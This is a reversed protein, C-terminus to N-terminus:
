TAGHTTAQAASLSLQGTRQRIMLVRLTALRDAEDLGNVVEAVTAGDRLRASLRSEHPTLPLRPLPAEDAPSLLLTQGMHDAFLTDLTDLTWHGRAAQTLLALGDIGTLTMADNDEIGAYVTYWGGSWGLLELVRARLQAQLVDLLAHPTVTGDAVLADGLRLGRDANTIITQTLQHGSLLGRNLMLHGLREDRDNSDAGVLQGRCISLMKARSGQSVHLTWASGSRILEYLLGTLVLPNSPGERHSAGDAACPSLRGFNHAELLQSLPIAPAGRASVKEHLGIARRHVLAAMAEYSIPDGELGNLREITFTADKFADDILGIEIDATTDTRKPASAKLAEATHPGKPTNWDLDDIFRALTRHTVRLRQDFLYTLLAERFAAAHPYRANPDQTLSRRLITRVGAPIYPHRALKDDLRAGRINNLTEPDSAGLFLRKLTLTEFLVIGLSFLDARHDVPQGNVQEPAMYGLKGKLTGRTDDVARQRGPRALDASAVGFDMLKVAGDGSILINSPSIDRHILNLPRGQSDATKHAYNLGNCVESIIYLALGLPIRLGARTASTLVGLLDPGPVYEMAIYHQGAIEGLEFTQVINPHHLMSSVRAEAVLMRVFHHNTAFAPLIKKIVLTREVGEPSVTRAKYVEAMGGVGIKEILEYGGFRL